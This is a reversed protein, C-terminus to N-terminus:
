LFLYLYHIDIVYEYCMFLNFLGYPMLPRNCYLYIMDPLQTMSTEDLDHKWYEQFTEGNDMKQTLRNM